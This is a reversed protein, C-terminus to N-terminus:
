NISVATKKLTNRHEKRYKSPAMGYRSRFMRTLHDASQYGAEEAIEEIRKDGSLLLSVAQNLRYSTILDSFSSHTYKKILKGLYSRDYHFREALENLTVTRFHTKLYHLVAAFSNVQQFSPDESNHEFNWSTQNLLYAFLVRIYNICIDHNHQENSIFECYLLLFINLFKRPESIHFKLFTKAEHYLCLDYFTSLPSDKGIVQFFTDNFYDQHILFSFSISGETDMVDHHTHPPIIVVENERITYNKGEFYLTHSGSYVYNFEIGDQSHIGAKSYAPYKFVIMREPLTTPGELGLTGPTLVIGSRDILRSVEEQNDLNCLTPDIVPIEGIHYKGEKKMRSIAQGFSLRDKTKKYHDYLYQQFEGYYIFKM